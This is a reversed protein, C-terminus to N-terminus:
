SALEHSRRAAAMVAETMLDNLSPMASAGGEAMLIGLAAATTGGPSTVNRRLDAPSLDSQHLLEGAGSVTACALKAALDKPLGAAEGAAALCEALLFVYAPGSGSVATVADMLTESELWVTEGAATMLAECQRSQDPTATQNAYLASIGRGIASPTNPMARIIAMDQVFHAAISSITRGAAISLLVTGPGSIRALSPLVADMVQPKVALVIVEPPTGTSQIDATSIGYERCYDRMEESILPDQVFIREPELGHAIWGKLLASGMRGAGALLIAGKGFQNM